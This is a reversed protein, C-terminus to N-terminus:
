GDKVEFVAKVIGKEKWGRLYGSRINGIINSTETINNANWIGDKETGDTYTITWNAKHTKLINERFVEESPLFLLQGGNEVNISSKKPHEEISPNESRNYNAYKLMKELILESRKEIFNEFHEEHWLSEDDPILHLSMYAQKDKVYEANNLWQAFPKGNKTGRNTGYDLLQYNKISDIKEKSYGSKELISKPMVHDKDNTRNISSLDYMLYFVFSNDLQDINNVTYNETFKVPHFKYVSFLSEFPFPKDKHDKILELIKRIGTTYPIWGSGKSFVGNLLSNFLWTRMFAFDSNGTEYNDFFHLIGNDDKRRHFLHYAIFFLPIFSRNSDKYYDYLKTYKLFDKLAKLTNQIRIRKNITFKADSEEIAVMEKKYNDQLLFILKILNDQSLGINQYKEQMERLLRGNGM